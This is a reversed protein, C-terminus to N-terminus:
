APPAHPHARTPPTFSTFDTFLQAKYIDRAYGSPVRHPLLSSPHPTSLLIRTCLLMPPWLPCTHQWLCCAHTGTNSASAQMHHVICSHECFVTPYLCAPHMVHLHEQCRSGLETEGMIVQLLRLLNCHLSHWPLSQDCLCRWAQQQLQGACLLVVAAAAAASILEVYYSKAAQSVCAGGPTVGM